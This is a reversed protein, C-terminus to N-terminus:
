NGSMAEQLEAITEQQVRLLRLMLDGMSLVGVLRDGDVVPLHRLGYQHLLRMGDALTDEPTVTADPPTMIERTRTGLSSRGKLIVKRTYDRESVMGVLKDGQMVMVCGVEEESMISIARHVSADPEVCHLNGDKEALLAAVPLDLLDSAHLVFTDDSM